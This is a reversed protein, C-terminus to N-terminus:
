PVARLDQRRIRHDESVVSAGCALQPDSRSVGLILRARFDRDDNSTRLLIMGIFPLRDKVAPEGLNKDDTVLIRKQDVALWLV